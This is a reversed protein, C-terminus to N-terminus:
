RPVPLALARLRRLAVRVYVSTSAPRAHGLIDGVIKASVGADVQRTAHSHRLVHSGLYPAGVGADAARRALLNCVAGAHTLRCYPARSRLFVERAVARRSRGHRLYSALARAVAPLLPLWTEAGTKPRLIHLTGAKWDIHELRLRLAESARLGYSAMLLLLAFDRSGVPTSRDIGRVIRQVDM